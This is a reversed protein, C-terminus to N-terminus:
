KKIRLSHHLLVYQLRVKFLRCAAPIVFCAQGLALMAGM